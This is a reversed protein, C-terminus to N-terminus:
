ARSLVAGKLDEFEEADIVEEERLRALRELLTATAEVSRERSPRLTGVVNRGRELLGRYVSRSAEVDLEALTGQQAFHRRFLYGVAYTSAGSLGSQAIGGGISGVGPLAKLASAGLRAASAGTLSAVVAKGTAIDFPVEYVKALARVLDIQIAAVAAVDALPVPIAGAAAAYVTHDEIIQDAIADQDM